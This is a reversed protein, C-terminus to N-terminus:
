KAEQQGMAGLRIQWVPTQTPGSRRVPETVWVRQSIDKSAGPALTEKADLTMSVMPQDLRDVLALMLADVERTETGRNRMVAGFDVYFGKLQEYGYSARRVEVDVDPVSGGVRALAKEGLTRFVAYSAAQAAEAKAVDAESAQRMKALETARMAGWAEDTAQALEFTERWHLRRAAPACMAEMNPKGLSLSIAGGERREGSSYTEIQIGGKPPASDKGKRCEWAKEAEARYVRTLQNLEAASHVPSTPDEVVDRRAMSEITALAPDFQDCDRRSRYEFPPAFHVHVEYTTDPPNLFRVEFRRAEQPALQTFPLLSTQGALLFEWHDIAQLTLPLVEAMATGTNRVVGSVAMVDQGNEKFTFLDVDELVVPGSPEPLQSKRERAVTFGMFSAPGLLVRVTEQRKKEADNLQKQTATGERWAVRMQQAAVTADYAARSKKLTDEDVKLIGTPRQRCVMSAVQELSFNAVTHKIEKNKYNVTVSDVDSDVVMSGDGAGRVDTRAPTAEPQVVPVPAAAPESAPASPAPEPTAVAVTGPTEPIEKMERAAMPFSYSKQDLSRLAAMAMSECGGAALAYLAIAAACAARAAFGSQQVIGEAWPDNGTLMQVM